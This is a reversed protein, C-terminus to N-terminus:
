YKSHHRQRRTRKAPRKTPKKRKTTKNHKTQRKVNKKTTKKNKPKKHKKHKKTKKGGAKLLSNLGDRSGMQPITRPSSTRSSSNSPTKNVNNNYDNIEEDYFSVQKDSNDTSSGLEEENSGTIEDVKEDTDFSDVYPIEEEEKTYGYYEELRKLEEESKILKTVFIGNEVTIYQGFVPGSYPEFEEKKEEEVEETSICSSGFCSSQNGGGGKKSSETTGGSLISDLTNVIREIEELMKRCKTPNENKICLDYLTSLNVVFSTVIPKLASDYLEAVRKKERINIRELSTLFSDLKEKIEGFETTTTTNRIYEILNKLVLPATQSTIKYKRNLYADFLMYNIPIIKTEINKCIEKTQNPYKEKYYGSYVEACRIGNYYLEGNKHSNVEDSYCTIRANAADVEGYVSYLLLTNPSNNIGYYKLSLDVIGFTGDDLTYGSYHTIGEEILTNVLPVNDRNKKFLPGCTLLLRSNPNEFGTDKVSHVITKNVLNINQEDEFKDSKQICMQHYIIKLFDYKKENTTFISPIYHIDNLFNKYNEDEEINFSSTASRGSTTRRSKRSSTTTVEQKSNVVSKLESSEKEIIFETLSETDEESLNNINDRVQQDIEISNIDLNIGKNNLLWDCIRKIIYIYVGFYRIPSNAYDHARIDRSESTISEPRLKGKSVNYNLLLKSIFEYVYKNCRVFSSNPIELDYLKKYVTKQVIQNTEPNTEEITESILSDMHQIFANSLPSNYGVNPDLGNVQYNKRETDLQKLMRFVTNYLFIDSGIVYPREEENKYLYLISIVCKDDIIYATPNISVSAGEFVSATMVPGIPTNLAASADYTSFVCFNDQNVLETLGCAQSVDLSSKTLIIQVILKYSEACFIANAEDRTKNYKYYNTKIEELVKLMHTTVDKVRPDDLSERNSFEATLYTDKYYNIFENVVGGKNDRKIIKNAKNSSSAKDDVDVIINTTMLAFDLLGFISLEGSIGYMEEKERWKYMLNKLRLADKLLGNKVVYNTFCKGPDAIKKLQSSNQNFSDYERKFTGYEAKSLLTPPQEGDLRDQTSTALTSLKEMMNNKNYKVASGVTDPDIKVKKEPSSFNQIKINSSPKTLETEPVNIEQDDSGNKIKIVYLAERTMGAARGVIIYEKGSYIVTEGNKFSM